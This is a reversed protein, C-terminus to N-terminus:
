PARTPPTPTSAPTSTVPTVVPTPTTVVEVVEPARTTYYVAIIVLVAILTLALIFLVGVAILIGRRYPMYCGGRGDCWKLRGLQSSIYSHKVLYSSSLPSRIGEEFLFDLVKM